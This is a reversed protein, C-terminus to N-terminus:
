LLRYGSGGGEDRGSRLLLECQHHRGSLGPDVRRPHGHNQQHPTPRTRTLARHPQRDTELRQRQLIDLMEPHRNSPRVSPIQRWHRPERQVLNAIQPVPLRSQDLKVNVDPRPTPMPLFHSTPARGPSQSPGLQGLGCKLLKRNQRQTQREDV